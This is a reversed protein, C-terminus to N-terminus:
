EQRSRRTDVLNSLEASSVPSGLLSAYTARLRTIQERDPETISGGDLRSTLADLCAHWGAATGAHGLPGPKGPWTTFILRTGGEEPHLEFRLLDAPGTSDGWLLEFLTPPDFARIEGPLAEDFDITSVDVGAEELSRSSQAVGDPWFPLRVRAGTAREGVIDAPFWHRLSESETLARWVTEPPHALHREYRLAVSDGDRVVRGLRDSTESM